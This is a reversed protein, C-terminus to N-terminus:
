GRGGAYLQSIRNALSVCPYCFGECPDKRDCILKVLDDRTPQTAFARVALAVVLATEPKLTVTRNSRFAAELRRAIADLSPRVPKFPTEM